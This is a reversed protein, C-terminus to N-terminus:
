ALVVVQLVAQGLQGAAVVLHFQLVAPQLVLAGLQGGGVLLSLSHTARTAPDRAHAHGPSLRPLVSLPWRRCTSRSQQSM